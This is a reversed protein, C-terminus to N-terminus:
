RRQKRSALEREVHALDADILPAYKDRLRTFEQQVIELEEDSCTISSLWGPKQGKSAACCNM